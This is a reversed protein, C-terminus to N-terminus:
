FGLNLGFVFTKPQPAAYFDTGVFVSTSDYLFDTSVEPDWGQYDTITLLNQGTIYFRVRSFNARRIWNQPLEYALTANRLRIYSGDYVYRSSRSQDGNSYGLRAEPINTVDGPQKWAALQDTTQNDFWCGNCSMYGGAADHVENGWVANFTFDLSVGNWSFSNTIGAIWDPNPTGLIIFNAANYDSTTARNDGSPDNVYWLADGNNPDVGAYEAGYFSGIQEGVKVVNMYRSGGNDILDQGPALAKVENINRAFNFSTNWKFAGVLNNSNIVLEIGRNQMEGINQTQITYGSTAPVPVDLLMDTTNKVYYDIEGSLRNNFFGYDIGVDIQSTQEWTLDPNAIRLPQLGSVGGYGGATYLGLHDFNGIAANGTLGYSARLKLFSIGSKGKLFSEETLVWGAGVSPFIGYRNNEGFRSSGDIRGTLTLLYKNAYAYNVRGIYSIFTYQTLNGSGATVEAASSLTRLDDSPLGEGDTQIDESRFKQFDVVATAGFDHREAFTKNYNLQLKTNLNIVQAFRSRVAGNVPLGVETRSGYFKQQNLSTIDVGADGRLDLGPLIHLTGYINSLNRITTNTKQGYETEILPNYYTTVPRDYYEGDSDRVPTIPALAVAQMPTSFANDDPVNNNVVRSTATTLGLDFRDNVRADLNLRGSLRELSNAVLIGEQNSWGASAFYRLRETGGTFSLDAQQSLANDRFALKQWDAAQYGDPLTIESIGDPSELQGASYRTIRGNVFNIAEDIAQQENEYFDSYFIWDQKGSGIAAQRYYSLYQQANLFDRYRTPQSTGTQFNFNIKGKGAQGKKTTILVVGNAGRSGYIAAASADKLIDVSEIDNFNLDALPNLGADSPDNVPDSNIPVGDVVFLPQNSATISSSGRIRMRIAGGPKGNNAEVFVGAARGQLSQEITPVPTNQIADARVKAINGTLQSKIQTGYGVVVVEDLAAADTELQINIESRGNIEEEVKRFGTYSIVLVNNGEVVKLSYFGDTNTLTGIKTGKVTITAGILPEGSERDIVKGSVSQQALVSITSIAVVFATTLLQKLM